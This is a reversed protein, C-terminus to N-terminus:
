RVGVEPAPARHEISHADTLHKVLQEALTTTSM